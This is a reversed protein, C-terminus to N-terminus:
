RYLHRRIKAKSRFVANNVVKVDKGLRKSIESPRFGELYLTFVELEFGSLLFDVSKMFDDKEPVTLGGRGEVGGIKLTDQVRRERRAGSKVKRFVSVAKNHLCRKAYCGFTVGDQTVDFTEAARYLAFTLDQVLDKYIDAGGVASASASFSAAVSSILPRYKELLEEFASDDKEKVRLIIQCLETDQM